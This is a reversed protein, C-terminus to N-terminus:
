LSEQTGLTVGVLEKFWAQDRYQDFSVDRLIFQASWEGLAMKIAISEKLAPLDQSSASFCARCGHYSSWDPDDKTPVPLSAFLAKAEDRRGLHYIWSAKVSNLYNVKAGPFKLAADIEDLAQQYKGQKGLMISLSGRLSSSPGRTEIIKRVYGEAANYDRNFNSYFVAGDLWQQYNPSEKAPEDRLFKEFMKQYTADSNLAYRLPPPDPKNEAVTVGNKLVEEAAGRPLGSLLASFLVVLAIVKTSIKGHADM